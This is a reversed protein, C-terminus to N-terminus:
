RGAPSLALELRQHGAGEPHRVRVEVAGRLVAAQEVAVVGLGEAAPGGVLDGDRDLLLAGVRDGRDEELRHLVGAAAERRRGAVELPDALDAVLVVHQQDAVLHDARVAPEAVHEAGLAVAVLGVHDGARLADGGAVGREARHDGGVPQHLREEM